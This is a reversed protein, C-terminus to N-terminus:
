MHATVPTSVTSTHFPIAPREEGVVPVHEHAQRPVGVDEEPVDRRADADRLPRHLLDHGVELARPDDDAEPDAAPVAIHHPALLGETVGELCPDADPLEEVEDLVASANRSSEGTRVLVCNGRDTM